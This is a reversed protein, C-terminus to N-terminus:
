VQILDHPIICSLTSSLAKPLDKPSLLMTFSGRLRARYARTTLCKWPPRPWFGGLITEHNHPRLSHFQALIILQRFVESVLLSHQGPGCYDWFIHHCTATSNTARLINTSCKSAGAGWFFEVRGLYNLNSIPETNFATTLMNQGLINLSESSSFHM